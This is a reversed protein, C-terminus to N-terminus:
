FQPDKDTEESLLIESGSWTSWCRWRNQDFLYLYESASKSGYELFDGMSAHRMAREDMPSSATIYFSIDSVHEELARFNGFNMVIDVIESDTYHHRLLKGVYSPYGDFHCYVSRVTGDDERKAIRASTSM